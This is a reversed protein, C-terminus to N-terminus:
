PYLVSSSQELVSYNSKAYGFYKQGRIFSKCYIDLHEQWFIDVHCIYCFQGTCTLFSKWIHFLEWTDRSLVVAFVVLEETIQIRIDLQQHCYFIDGRLGFRLIGMLRISPVWSTLRGLISHSNIRQCWTAVQNTSEKGGSDNASFFTTDTCQKRVQAM